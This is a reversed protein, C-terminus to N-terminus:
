TRKVGVPASAMKRTATRRTVTKRTIAPMWGTLLARYATQHEDRLASFRASAAHTKGIEDAAAEALSFWDHWAGGKNQLNEFREAVRAAWRSQPANEAQYRAMKAQKRIAHLQEVSPSRATLAPQSRFRRHLLRLLEPVAVPLQEAPQLAAHLAEAAVVIKPGRKELQNLLQHAAQKRLRKRLKRMRKGDGRTARQDQTHDGIDQTQEKILERQVDLDRVRGAAQRLKKIKRLLADAESRFPPLGTLLQLLQLQAEIRRSEARLRHVATPTPDALCVSLAAELATTHERLMGVPYAPVDAM